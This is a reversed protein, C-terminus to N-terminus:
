TCPSRHQVSTSTAQHRHANTSQRSSSTNYRSNETSRRLRSQSLTNSHEKKTSTVIGLHLNTLPSHKFIHRSSIHDRATTISAKPTEHPPLLSIKALSDLRLNWRLATAQPTLLMTCPLVAITKTVKELPILQSVTRILTLISPHAIRDTALRQQRRLM